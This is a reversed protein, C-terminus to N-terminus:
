KFKQKIRELIVNAKQEQFAKLRSIGDEIQNAYSGRNNHIDLIQEWTSQSEFLDSRYCFNGQNISEMYDRCKPRYEIMVSPVGACTSLVVAHLKMGVFIDVKSVTDMYKKQDQYITFINEDTGSEKAANITPDYDKPWIVFWVVKWGAKRAISALEAFEALVKDEQGWMYGGATGLNIGLTKEQYSKSKSFDAFTLVPDGVVEVNKIGESILMEKSLPGRVGVYECQDLIDHWQSLHNQWSNDGFVKKDKWFESSAVGTGFVFCPKALKIMRQARKLCNDNKNIITGGALFAYDFVRTVKALFMENKKGYLSYLSIGPFLKKSAEFLAEDGLNDHGLWGGVYVAKPKSHSLTWSTFDLTKKISTIVQM